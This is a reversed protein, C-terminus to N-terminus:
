IATKDDNSQGDDSDKGREVAEEAVQKWNTHFIVWALMSCVALYGITVGCYLVYLKSKYHVYKTFLIVAPAQFVWSGVLGIYLVIKPRGMARVIGEFAVSLNMAMTTTALPLGVRDFEDLIVPDSSFILGMQRSFLAIATGIAAVFTVVILMGIFSIFKGDGADGKGFAIGLRISVASSVSGVFVIGAWMIRYSSVYVAVETPGMSTAVAGIVAVRWFDSAVSLSAPGYLRVYKVIRDWTIHSASLGPWSPKHMGKWAVFVFYLVGLQVWEMSATIIPCAYFGYGDFGPIGVGLVLTLGLVVNLTMAIVSAVVSPYMIRQSELMTTIQQSIIIAPIAGILILAYHWAIQAQSPNVEFVHVLVPGTVAWLVIVPVAIAALVVLSIQMWVGVMKPNGSGIANGAFVSLVHANLFVRSSSTYLDSVSTGSLYESGVHGLLASDTMKMVVWSVM